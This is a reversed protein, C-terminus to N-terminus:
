ARRRPQEGPVAARAVDAKRTLQVDEVGVLNVVPAGRGLIAEAVADEVDRGFEDAICEVVVRQWEDGVGHRRQRRRRPDDGGEKSVDVIRDAVEGLNLDGGAERVDEVREAASVSRGRDGDVDSGYFEGAVVEGGVCAFLRGSRSELLDGSGVPEREGAVEAAGEAGAGVSVSRHAAEREGSHRDFAPLREGPGRGISAEGILAV